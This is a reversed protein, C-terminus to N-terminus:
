AVRGCGHDISTKVENAKPYKQDKKDLIELENDLITSLSGINDVPSLPSEKVASM